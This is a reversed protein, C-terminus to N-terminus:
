GCLALVNTPSSVGIRGNEGALDRFLMESLPRVLDRIAPGWKGDHTFTDPEVDPSEASFYTDAAKVLKKVSGEGMCIEPSLCFVNVINPREIAIASNARQEM